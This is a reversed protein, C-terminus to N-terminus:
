SRPHEADYADGCVKWLYAKMIKKGTTKRYPDSTQRKDRLYMCFSIGFCVVALIGFLIILYKM